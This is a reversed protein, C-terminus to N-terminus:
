IDHIVKGTCIFYRNRDYCELWGQKCGSGAPKQGKILIHFGTGSQSLETYSNFHRIIKIAEATTEGTDPNRCDDLDVGCYPDDVHFMFGPYPYVTGVIEAGTGDVHTHECGAWENIFEMVDNFSSWTGPNNAQAGRETRVDMPVKRPKPKLKGNNDYDSVMKCAVWQNRARLKAPIVQLITQYDFSFQNNQPHFNEGSGPAAQWGSAKEMKAM